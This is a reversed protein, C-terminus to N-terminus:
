SNHQSINVFRRPSIIMSPPAPPYPGRHSVVRSPQVGTVDDMSKSVIDGHRHGSSYGVDYMSASVHRSRQQEQEGTPKGVAVTRIISYDDRSRGDDGDPLTIHEVHVAVRQRPWTASSSTQQLSLAGAAHSLNDNPNCNDNTASRCSGSEPQLCLSTSLLETANLESSDVTFLKSDNLLWDRPQQLRRSSSDPSWDTDGREEHHQFRRRVFPSPCSSACSAATTSLLSNVSDNDAASYVSDVSSNSSSSRSMAFVNNDNCMNIAFIEAEKAAAEVSANEAFSPINLTSVEQQLKSM